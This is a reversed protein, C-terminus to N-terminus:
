NRIEVGGMIAYGRIILRKSGDPPVVTKEEFGGLIPTGLLIVTWDPPCKITVGGWFAFVNIVAEGRISAGRMDLECGGMVATIEGGRFDQTAVRREYGGLIATIDVVDGSGTNDLMGAGKSAASGDTMGRSRLAKAVLMGGLGILILPWLTRVSFDIIDLRDLMMLIGVGVLAAGLLTGGQSRTDCLKVTGVIVFLMPWFSFARHMDVLGLNDLLFLLGMGIVLVGLVVQGTVGRPMRENKM